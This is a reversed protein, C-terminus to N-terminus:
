AIEAQWEMYQWKERRLRECAPLIDEHMVQLMPHNVALLHLLM